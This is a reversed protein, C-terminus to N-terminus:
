MDSVHKHYVVFFLHGQNIVVNNTILFSLKKRQSRDCVKNITSFPLKTIATQSKLFDLEIVIKQSVTEKHHRVFMNTISLPAKQCKRNSSIVKRVSYLHGGSSYM